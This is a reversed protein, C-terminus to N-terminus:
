WRPLLSILSLLHLRANWVCSFGTCSGSAIGNQLAEFSWSINTRCHYWFWSVNYWHNNELLWWSILKESSNMPNSMFSTKESLLSLSLLYHDYFLKTIMKHLLAYLIWTILKSRHLCSRLQLFEHLLIDFGRCCTSIMRYLFTALLLMGLIKDWTNIYDPSGEKWLPTNEAKEHWPVAHKNVSESNVLFLYMSKRQDSFHCRRLLQKWDDFIKKLDRVLHNRMESSNYCYCTARAQTNSSYSSTQLAHKDNM